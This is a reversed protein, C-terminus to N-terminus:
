KKDEIFRAGNEIPYIKGKKGKEEEAYLVAKIYELKNMINNSNELIAVKKETEFDIFIKGEKLEVETILGDINLTKASQYIKNVEEVIKLAEGNLRQEKGNNIKIGKLLPISEKRDSKGLVYGQEDIIYYNSDKHIQYTETREKVNIIITNPLKRTIKVDKVRPIKLIENKAVVYNQLFINKNKEIGSNKIVKDKKVKVMDNIEFQKIKFVDLTLSLIVLLIILCFLLFFYIKIKSKKKNVNKDNKKKPKEGKNKKM